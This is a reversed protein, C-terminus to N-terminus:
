WRGQKYRGELKLHDCKQTVHNIVKPDCALRCAAVLCTVLKKQPANPQAYAEVLQLSFTLRDTIPCVLTHKLNIALHPLLSLYIRTGTAM